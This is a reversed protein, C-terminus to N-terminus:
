TARATSPRNPLRLARILDGRAMGLEEFMAQLGANNLLALKVAADATLPQGLLAHAQEDLRGGDDAYRWPVEHGTRSVM